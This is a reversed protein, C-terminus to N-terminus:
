SSYFNDNLLIIQTSQINEVDISRQLKRDQNHQWLLEFVTKKSM